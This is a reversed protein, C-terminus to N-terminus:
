GIEYVPIGAKRTAGMMDATGTGGPFAILLDFGFAIMERNRIPGAARKHKNWDAMFVHTTAGVHAAWEGALSDAGRAGGHVLEFMGFTAVANDLARFVRDKDAYDRGGCVCIRKVQM